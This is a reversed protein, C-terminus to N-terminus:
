RAFYLLGLIYLWLVGMFHWYWATVDLIIRRTEPPRRFLNSIGAYLLAILGGLRLCLTARRDRYYFPSIQQYLQHRSTIEDVSCWAGPM